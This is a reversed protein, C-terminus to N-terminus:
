DIIIPFGKWLNFFHDRDSSISQTPVSAKCCKKTNHQIKHLFFQVITVEWVCKDQKTDISPMHWQFSESIQSIRIAGAAVRLVNSGDCPYYECKVILNKTRSAREKSRNTAYYLVDMSIRTSALVRPMWHIVTLSSEYSITDWHISWYWTWAGINNLFKRHTPRRSRWKSNM